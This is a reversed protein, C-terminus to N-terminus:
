SKIPISYIEKFEIIRIVNAITTTNSLKTDEFEGGIDGIKINLTLRKYNILKMIKLQSMM